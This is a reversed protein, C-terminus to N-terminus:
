ETYIEIHTCVHIDKEMAVYTMPVYTDNERSKKSSSKNPILYVKHPIKTHTRIPAVYGFLYLDIYIRLVHLMVSVM